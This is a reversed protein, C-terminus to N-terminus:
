FHSDRVRPHRVESVMFYTLTFLYMYKLSLSNLYALALIHLRMPLTGSFVGLWLTSVDYVVITLYCPFSISFPLSDRQIHSIQPMSTSCTEHFSPIWLPSLVELSNQLETWIRYPLTFWSCHCPYAAVFGQRKDKIKQGKQCSDFTPFDNIPFGRWPQNTKPTNRLSM